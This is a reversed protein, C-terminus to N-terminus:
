AAPLLVLSVEEAQEIEMSFEKMSQKLFHQLIQTLHPSWSRDSIEM